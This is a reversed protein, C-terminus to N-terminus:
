TTAVLTMLPDNPASKGSKKKQFYLKWFVVEVIVISNYGVKKYTNGTVIWVFTVKQCKLIWLVKLMLVFSNFLSHVKVSLGIPSILIAFIKSIALDHLSVPQCRPCLSVLLVYM